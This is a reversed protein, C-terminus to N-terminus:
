AAARAAAHGHGGAARAADNDLVFVRVSGTLRRAQDQLSAAAAAAEEVLAANQQTAQDMQVVAESVQEIGSSQQLSAATIESMLDTVRQVSAVIEQMTEGAAGVLRSGSEVQTVSGSILAKIEKAAAASRQALNRVESAVVAFGRGSEGARAAEVAANLALINTQFAIGDIVGIIDVIKRSSATIAEMTTVVDGVVGGGRAAVGSAGAALQNAQKASEANQKVTATLEEMSSATEELSSAQQETRNSLDANGVALQEAASAIGLAAERIESVLARLNDVTGNADQKLGDFMGEYAADIRETLNGAQLARLVRAVDNLGREATATVENLGEAVQRYFGQKDAVGVRRSFDGAAAARVVSSVETEAAIEASRDRWQGVTGLRTGDAARVPATTVEYTRGGLDMTARTTADLASLRALAAAPDAYFVGVSGGVVREPDFQASTARFAAADRRLVELLAPNAYVITGGADAIRVPTPTADLAQRVRQASAASARATSLDSGLKLQMSKLGRMLRAIEDEGATAIARRFDGAAMADFHGLAAQLGKRIGGVVLWAIALGAVLLVLTALAARVVQGHLREIRTVLLGDLAPAGADYLAFAADMAATAAAFYETPKVTITTPRLLDRDILDTYRQVASALAAYRARLAAELQADARFSAAGAREVEGALVRMRALLGAMELRTASDIKGDAAAVVGRARAQGMSETLQLLQMVVASMTYFSALEPDLVLGSADATQDLLALAAAVAETHAAFSQPAALTRHADRLVPWRGRVAQWTEGLGLTPALRADVADMRGLSAEVADRLAPLKQAAAADGAIVIGSMGRHKQVAEVVARGAVHYALGDRELAAAALERGIYGWAVATVLALPLTLAVGALLLKAGLGLRERVIRVPDVRAWWRASVVRGERVAIGRATGANMERYLREAAAIDERSAQWRVSLYGKLQGAEVVPTVNARVWYYDGNKCRNKVLGSWPRGQKLTAWLDAFAASPMDPHRVINHPAGILEASTFGSIRVFDENVATIRGKADTESVILTDADFTQERDTVPVNNRM